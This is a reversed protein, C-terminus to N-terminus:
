HILKGWFKRGIRELSYEKKVKEYAAKPLSKYLDGDLFFSELKWVLDDEDKPTFFLVEKKEEFVELPGGLRSICLVKGSAAAELPVRGFPEAEEAAHVVIDVKQFAKEPTMFGHFYVKKELDHNKIFNYIELEMIKSYKIIVTTFDYLPDNQNSSYELETSILNDITTPHMRNLWKNGFTYKTFNDKIDLNKEKYYSPAFNSKDFPTVKIVKVVYVSSYDTLFLQMYNDESITEYVKHLEDEFNHTM